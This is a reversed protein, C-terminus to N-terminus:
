KNIKLIVDFDVVMRLEPKDESEYHRVITGVYQDFAIMNGIEVIDDHVSPGVSIVRGFLLESMTPDKAGSFVAGDGLKELDIIEVLLRNATPTWNDQLTENNSVEEQKGIIDYGRVLKYINETDDTPLFSGAFQTFATVEGTKLGPCHEQNDANPGMAVVKGYRVAVTEQDSETQLVLGEYIEDVSLLKVLVRDKLPVIDNVKLM